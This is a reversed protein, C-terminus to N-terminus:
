KRWKGFGELHKKDKALGPIGSDLKGLGIIGKRRPAPVGAALTRIGRRVIESDSWNMQRHLRELDAQSSSDLRAHVIRPM